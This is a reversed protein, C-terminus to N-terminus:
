QGAPVTIVKTVAYTHPDVVWIYGNDTVYRNDPSLSYQTVVSQPITNFASYYPYDAGFMTGVKVEKAQKVTLRNWSTCVGNRWGSCAITNSYTRAGVPMASLAVAAGALVLFAKTM